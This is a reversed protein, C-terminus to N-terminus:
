RLLKGVRIWIRGLRLFKSFTSKCSFIDLLNLFDYFILGLTMYGLTKQVCGITPDPNLWITQIRVSELIFM